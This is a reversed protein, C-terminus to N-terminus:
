LNRRSSRALEKVRELLLKYRIGLGEDVALIHEIKRKASSLQSHLVYIDRAPLLDSVVALYVELAEGEAFLAAPRGSSDFALLVDVLENRSMLKLLLSYSKVVEPFGNELAVFLGPMGDSRRSRIICSLMSDFHGAAVDDRFMMMKELLKVFADVTGHHGNQMAIFLGPISDSGSKCMLLDFVMGVLTTNEICGRISLLRYLLSCFSLVANSNGEQLAVFLGDIGEGTRAKLLEFIIKSIRDNSVIGRLLLLVEDLLESYAEIASARNNRMGVFLASEGDSGKASVINLVLNIFDDSSVRFKMETLQKRVLAVYAVISDSCGERMAAFLASDGNSSNKSILLESMLDTLINTISPLRSPRCRYFFGGLFCNYSKLLESNNHSMLEYILPLGARSRPMLISLLMSSFMADPISGKLLVFKGVLDGFANVTSDNKGQLVILLGTVGADSRSELLRFLMSVMDSGPVHDKMDLLMDLLNSFALVAGTHGNQLAVFLGPVGTSSKSELLKFIMNAMSVYPVSGRMVLLGDNVLAGFINVLDADGRELVYYLGADGSNSRSELLRFVVSALDIDPVRGRMVLLRSLLESFFFVAVTRCNKLASFLGTDGEYSKSELLRFIMRVMDVDPIHGKMLLLKDILEAFLRISVGDDSKLLAVYLGTDGSNSKSELLRFIMEAMDSGSVHGRMALLRDILEGFSSVAVVNDRQLAVYLGTDGSNSKSELLRFIMRAMDGDPVNGKMVLLRDILKGFGRVVVSNKQLAASLGADGSSSKSELLRFIMRVMDSDPVDGKMVLLRDVLNSFATVAGDSGEQLAVFLGTNGADSKSELLRFIMRAMDCDPVYGKMVLLKDILEGFASVANAYNKKLAYFLASCGEGDRHDLLRFIIDSLGISDVVDEKLIFTKDLLNGFASVSGVRNKLLSMSLASFNDRPKALLIDFIVESFNEVKHRVSILRDLLLGFGDMCEVHGGQMAMFLAPVGESSEAKIIDPLLNVKEDCSLKELFNNYSAISGAKNQEMAMHLASIGLSSKALFIERRVDVSLASFSSSEALGVIDLPGVGGFMMHYIMNGSIGDQSLTELTLFGSSSEEEDSYEYVACECETSGSEVGRFYGAYHGKIMFMRLSFRDQDLFEGRNLVESRSVVNTVRPDFFYVVWRNVFEGEIRKVKCAVRFSMVHSGSRLIFFRQEGLIMTSAIKHLFDGFKDCAIVHKGCSNEEVKTGIIERFNHLAARRVSDKDSFLASVRLKRDSRYCDVGNLTYLLSLDSCSIIRENVEVKNSLDRLSSSAHKKSFYPVSKQSYPVVEMSHVSIHTHTGVFEM